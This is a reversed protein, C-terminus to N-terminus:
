RKSRGQGTTSPPKEAVPAARLLAHSPMPYGSDELYIRYTDQVMQESGFAILRTSAKSLDTERLSDLLATKLSATDLRGRVITWPAAAGDDQQEEKPEEEKPERVKREAGAAPGRGASSSLVFTVCFRDEHLAVLERLKDLGFAEDMGHLAWVLHVRLADPQQLEREALIMADTIAIGYSLIGVARGDHRTTTPAPTHKFDVKEGVQLKDLYGSCRGEGPYVKVIIDFSAAGVRTVTFKKPM